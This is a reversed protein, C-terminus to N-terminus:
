TWLDKKYENIERNFFLKQANEYAYRQIDDVELQMFEALAAAIFPISSPDNVSKRPKRTKPFLYPGDTELLLRDLPLSKVATQLDSGRKNDCIWGTVGIYCALETYAQLQETNGTFCHAVLYPIDNAYKELLKIQQEFADREHLYLGLKYESAIALQQEFAYLQNKQTSFNRNFDLGCEGIAVVHKDALMHKLKAWTESTANDAYHPHVGATQALKVSRTNASQSGTQNPTYPYEKLVQQAKESEEITSCIVLLDQVNANLASEMTQTLTFREDLLNIGCDCWHM